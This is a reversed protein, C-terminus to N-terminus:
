EFTDVYIIKSNEDDFLTYSIQIALFGDSDQVIGQSVYVSDYSFTESNYLTFDYQKADDIVRQKETEYKEDSFSCELYITYYSDILDYDSYYLYIDDISEMSGPLPLMAYTTPMVTRMKKYFDSYDTKSKSDIQYCGTLFVCLISLVLLFNIFRKM